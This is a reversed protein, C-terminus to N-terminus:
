NWRTLTIPLACPRIALRESRFANPIRWAKGKFNVYGKTSSASRVIESRAYVPEPLQHPLMRPSTQYRGVPVAM